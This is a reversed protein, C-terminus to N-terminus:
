KLIILLLVLIIVLIIITIWQGNEKAKESFYKLRKQGTSLNRDNHDLQAELDELLINQDDLEQNIDLGLARQRRVSQALTDLHDDQQVLQQQHQIFMDQNSTSDISEGDADDEVGDRGEFLEDTQDQTPLDLVQDKYPKFNKPQAEEVTDNFRVSKKNNLPKVPRHLFNTNGM